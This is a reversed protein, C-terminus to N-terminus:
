VMGANGRDLKKREKREGVQKSQFFLADQPKCHSHKEVREARKRAPVVKKVSDIKESELNEILSQTVANPRGIPLQLGRHKADDARHQNKRGQQKRHDEKRTRRNVDTPCISECRVEYPKEC